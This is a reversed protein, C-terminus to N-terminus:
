VPAAGLDPAADGEIRFVRDIEHEYAGLERAARADNWDLLPAVRACVRRAAAVGHDATEFAVHTRRVLLDALTCAMEHVVAFRLEGMMYPLAGHVRDRGGPDQRVENWVRLWRSGYTHVLHEALGGDGTAARAEAIASNVDVDGGPLTTRGRETSRRDVPRALERQVVALVDRAMVRYTTLKGGTVSIVGTPSRSIAHERSAEVPDSASTAVLPRIGAWASVVDSRDLRAAPFFANAADLLYRVDTWSARVDDPSATTYTDTTGIITYGKAPLVFMVRGDSPSLLTIAGRNDLRERPVAVHVGKSGRVHARESSHEDEFSDLARVADSWPGTANVVVRARVQIQQGGVGDLVVAGSVRGAAARLATVAAHNLVVAGAEAAGIANTLTLRADDTAADFYRAGGVLGDRRLGPEITVVEAPPLMRHAGVNRFVALADYLLLGASLKWRPVRAGAYLPWLFALPQVLHPALRRLQRRERSAEFVLRLQGHELYRLGGHVLRSSRSSTGSAFDDKEVLAVSLGRLAAERAIGAGTIGGGIVLM